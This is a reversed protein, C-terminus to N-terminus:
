KLKQNSGSPDSEKTFRIRTIVQAPYNNNTGLESNKTAYEIKQGVALQQQNLIINDPSAVILNDSLGYTTQNIQITRYQLDLAIIVGKQSTIMQAEAIASDPIATFSVIFFGLGFMVTRLIPSIKCSLM